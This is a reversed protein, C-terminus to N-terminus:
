AAKDQGGQRKAPKAPAQGQVILRSEVDEQEALAFLDAREIPVRVGPVAQRILLPAGVEDELQRVMKSITSQTVNLAQAAQTFSDRRVTEIFYRLARLDM